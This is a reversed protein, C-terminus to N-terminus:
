STCERMIVESSRCSSSRAVYGRLNYFLLRIVMTAIVPTKSDGKVDQQTSARREPIFVVENQELLDFITLERESMRDQIVNGILDLVEDGAEQDNVRVLAHIRVFDLVMGPIFSLVIRAAHGEVLKLVQFLVSFIHFFSLSIQGSVLRILVTLPSFVKHTDM